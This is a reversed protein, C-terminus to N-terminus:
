RCGAIKKVHQYIVILALLHLYICIPSSDKGTRSGGGGGNYIAVSAKFKENRGIGQWGPEASNGTSKRTFRILM